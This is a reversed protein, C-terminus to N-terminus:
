HAWSPAGSTAIDFVSLGIVYFVVTIVLIGILDIGFGTRAMEAVTLRGSAFVM